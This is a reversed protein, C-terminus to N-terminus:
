SVHYKARVRGEGLRIREYKDFECLTHEVTRMEWTPFNEPIHSDSCELLEQMYKIYEIDKMHKNLPLGLLRNIGRKAGPGPNAWSMIDSTCKLFRTWRLDTIIEYANFKGFGPVAGVLRDFANKLTDDHKPELEKRKEWLISAAIKFFQEPKDKGPAIRSTVMFAGTFIPNGDDRYMRVQQLVEDPNYSHLFNGIVEHTSTRNYLRFLAVNFFLETHMALPERINKRMYVTTRDFERYVNTFKYKRLIEDDTWPWVIGNKRKMYISHREICFKFYNDVHVNIMM